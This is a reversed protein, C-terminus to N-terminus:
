NSYSLLHQHFLMRISQSRLVLKCSCVAGIFLDLHGHFQYPM